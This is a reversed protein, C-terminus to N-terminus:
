YSQSVQAVGRDVRAKFMEPSIALSRIAQWAKHRLIWPKWYHAVHEVDGLKIGAESLCYEVAQYPFGIHHKRRSFREEEVAALVKGDGILTAAADGMTTLGLIYM